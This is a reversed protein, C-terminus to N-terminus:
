GREGGRVFPLGRSQAIKELIDVALHRHCFVGQRCYCALAIEERELIELFAASNARFRARLLEYYRETYQEPSLQTYGKWGKVGGVLEWTPALVKGLGTASKVTIDLASGNAQGIRSTYVICM